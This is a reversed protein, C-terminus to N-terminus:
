KSAAEAAYARYFVEVGSAIIAKKEKDSIPEGVCVLARLQLNGRVLGIFQEAAQKSNATRLQGDKMASKIVSEVRYLLRAPGSEYYLRGLEPARAAEAIVMRHAAIADPALLIALVTRGLRLLAPKVEEDGAEEAMAAAAYRASFDNVIAGFLDKKNQFYVYLTAKSVGSEAAVADMSTDSYGHELFLRRAARLIPEVKRGTLKKHTTQLVQSTM